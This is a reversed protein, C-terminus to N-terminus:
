DTPDYKNEEMGKMEKYMDDLKDKSISDIEGARDRNAGGSPTTTPGKPKTKKPPPPPPGASPDPPVLAPVEVGTGSTTKVPPCPVIDLRGDSGDPPGFFTPNISFGTMINTIRLTYSGDANTTAAVMVGGGSGSLVVPTGPTSATGTTGTGSGMGVCAVALTSSNLRVVGDAYAPAAPTMALLSTGVVRLILPTAESGAQEKRTDNM